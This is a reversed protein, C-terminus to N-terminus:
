GEIMFMLAQMQAPTFEASGLSDISFTKIELEQEIAFLDNLETNAEAIKDEPIIYQTGEESLVGYHQAIELRSKDIEQAAAAFVQINKQLFFNAKAPIYIDLNGLNYMLSDAIQYIESNTFAQKM